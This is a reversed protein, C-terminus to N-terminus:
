RHSPQLGHRGLSGTRSPQLRLGASKTPKPQLLAVSPHERSLRPRRLPHRLALVVAPEGKAAAAVRLFASAGFLDLVVVFCAARRGLVGDPPLHSRAAAKAPLLRQCGHNLSAPALSSTSSTTTSRAVRVAGVGGARTRSPIRRGAPPPPPVAVAITKTHTNDYTNPVTPDPPSTSTSPRTQPKLHCPTGTSTPRHTIDLTTGHGQSDTGIRQHCVASCGPM